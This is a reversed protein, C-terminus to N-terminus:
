ISHSEQCHPGNEKSAINWFFNMGTLQTYLSPQKESLIQLFIDVANPGRRSLLSLLLRNRSYTTSGSMVESLHDTNLVKEQLLGPLIWQPQLKQILVVYHPIITDQFTYKAM